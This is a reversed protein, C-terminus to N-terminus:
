VRSDQSVEHTPKKRGHGVGEAGEEVGPGPGADVSRLRVEGLDEREAAAPGKRARLVRRRKSSRSSRGDRGEESGHRRRRSGPPEHPERRRANGADLPAYRSSLLPAPAHCLLLLSCLFATSIAAASALTLSALATERAHTFPAFLRHM